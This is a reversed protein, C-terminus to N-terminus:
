GFAEFKKLLDDIKDPNEDVSISSEKEFHISTGGKNNSSYYTISAINVRVKNKSSTRTVSIFKM